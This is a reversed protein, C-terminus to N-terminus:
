CQNLSYMQTAGVKSIAFPVALIVPYCVMVWCTEFYVSTFIRNTALYRWLTDLHKQLTERAVFVAVLVVVYVFRLFWILRREHSSILSEQTHRSGMASGFITVDFGSYYNM